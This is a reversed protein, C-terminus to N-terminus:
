NGAWVSIGYQQVICDIKVLLMNIQKHNFTNSQWCKSMILPNDGVDSVHTKITCHTCTRICTYLLIQLCPSPLLSDIWLIQGTNRLAQCQFHPIKKVLLWFVRLCHSHHLVYNVKEQSTSCCMFLLIYSIVWFHVLLPLHRKCYKTSM